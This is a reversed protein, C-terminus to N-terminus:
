VYSFITGTKCSMSKELHPLFTICSKYPLVRFICWEPAGFQHALITCEVCHNNLTFGSSFVIKIYRNHSSTSVFFKSLWSPIASPHVLYTRQPPSCFM